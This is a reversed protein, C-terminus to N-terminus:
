NQMRRKMSNMEPVVTVLSKSEFEVKNLNVNLLMKGAGKSMKPFSIISVLQNLKLYVAKTSPNPMFIM